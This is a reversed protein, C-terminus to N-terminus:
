SKERPLRRFRRFDQIGQSEIEIAEEMCSLFSGSTVQAYISNAIQEDSMKEGNDQLIEENVDLVVALEVRMRM